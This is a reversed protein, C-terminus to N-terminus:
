SNEKQENALDKLETMNKVVIDAGAKKLLEEKGNRDVGIVLAFNGKKGAKVGSIADEIVIAEGPSVNLKEAAKLFIDAEPKGKLNEKESVVGDVRVSFFSTLGAKEIIHECNRSSSIVALKLNKNKWLELIELSDQYVDVGDKEILKLFINNKRKALGEVTNKKAPDDPNGEPIDINRSNVFSRIGDRRPKGDIYENYDKEIDLPQFDEGGMEKLFPDFMQKWAEAHVTATKTLVGDMDLIAAGFNINRIKPM